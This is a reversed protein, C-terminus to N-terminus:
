GTSLVNDYTAAKFRNSGISWTGRPWEHWVDLVDGVSCTNLTHLELIVLSSTYKKMM